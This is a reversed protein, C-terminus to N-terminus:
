YRSSSVIIILITFANVQKPLGLFSAFRVM